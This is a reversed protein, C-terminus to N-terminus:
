DRLKRTLVLWDVFLDVTGFAMLLGEAKGDLGEAASITELLFNWVMWSSEHGPPGQVVFAFSPSDSTPEKLLAAVSSLLRLIPLLGFEKTSRLFNRRPRPHNWRKQLAQRPAQVSPFSAVYINQVCRSSAWEKSSIM